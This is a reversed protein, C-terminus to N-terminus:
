FIIEPNIWGALIALGLCALSVLRTALESANYARVQDIGLLLSQLLLLALAFPIWGLTLLLLTGHVPLLLPWVKDLICGVLAVTGGLGFSVVLTNGVLVPLLTGDKAVYYTNSAHLGLNGFQMGI